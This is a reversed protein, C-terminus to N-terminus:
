HYHLLPGRVEGNLGHDVPQYAHPESDVPRGADRVCHQSANPRGVIEIRRIKFRHVAHLFTM